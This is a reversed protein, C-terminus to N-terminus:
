RNWTILMIFVFTLTLFIIKQALLASTVAMVLITSVMVQFYSGYIVKEDKTLHRAFIGIPIALLLLFYEIM